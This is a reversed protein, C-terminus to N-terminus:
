IQCSAKSGTCRLKLIEIQTRIRKWKYNEEEKKTKTQCKQTTEMTEADIIDTNKKQQEM